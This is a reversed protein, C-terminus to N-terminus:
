PQPESLKLKTTLVTRGQSSIIELNGGVRAIRTAMSRMGISIGAQRVAEVNFGLGNDEIELVLVDLQPQTLTVGVCDARSHKVVNTLAEEVIRTMALCQLASPTYRWNDPFVWKSQISLEEFLTTFRHRSPAIWDIPTAPVKISASSNSDITQRLDDRILKLMSIVQPRNVDGSGKEITAMMHVLSGGIGDHLDHAIEIRDRLRANSLELTYERELTTALEARADEVSRGLEVNFEEIRRVNHAHRLGLIGSLSLTIAINAYPLVPFKGPILAFIFLFDHLTTLFLVLLCFALLLHERQKTRWAYIPFDICNHLFFATAVLLSLIQIYGIYIQPTVILLGAFLATSTWITLEYRKRVRQSFRLTFICFASVSLMLAIANVKAAVMSDQWPWPTTLLANSIFVVWFLTSLAYWGYATQDRRVIWICFFLIGIVGSVILNAVYLTRSRWWLNEFEQNLKGANGIQVAGLGITQHKIGVVRIWVTNVGDNLWVDPLMWYRPMNWSRSIPEVLHEDRWLFHDNIYVEGAMVISRLLLAISQRSGPSCDQNWDLRYWVDDAAADTHWNWDHPLTVAVWDSALLPRKGDEASKATRIDSIEVNCEPLAAFTQTATFLTIIFLFFAGFSNV